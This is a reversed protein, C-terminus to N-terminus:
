LHEVHLFGMFSCPHLLPGAVSAHVVVPIGAAPLAQLPAKYLIAVGTPRGNILDNDDWCVHGAEYNSIVDQHSLGLHAQCAGPNCFCGTRLLINSLGALKEVERGICNHLQIAMM